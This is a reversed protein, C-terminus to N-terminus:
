DFCDDCFYSGHGMYSSCAEHTWERCTDCQIWDERPPHYYKEKCVTCYYDPHNEKEKSNPTYGQTRRKKTNSPGPKDEFSVKKKAVAADHKKKQEEKIPTSTLIEAKQKKRGRASKKNKGAPIPRIEVLISKLSKRTDRTAGAEEPRTEDEAKNEHPQSVTQELVERYSINLVSQLEEPLPELQVDNGKLQLINGETLIQNEEMSGIPVHSRIDNEQLGSSQDNYQLTDARPLIDEQATGADPRTNAQPCRMEESTQYIESPEFNEDGILHKNFPFIGSARFGSIANGPTAAKLYAGTFIKAVDYQGITRGPHAKQFTNVEIEFYKKLPGYVSVDLPQLKHSTHPLISLFIVNNNTAFELAAYNKHSEHNDLLLLAKKEKTPRVKNVFM